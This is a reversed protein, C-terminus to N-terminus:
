RGAEVGTGLIAATWALVIFGVAHAVNLNGLMALADGREMMWHVATHAAVISVGITAVRAPLGHRYALGAASSLVSAAWVGTATIVIAFVVLAEIEYAGAFVALDRFEQGFMWGSLVGFLAALPWLWRGGAGVVNALTVVVIASAAILQLLLRVDDTAPARAAGAILGIAQALMLAGIARRRELAPRM